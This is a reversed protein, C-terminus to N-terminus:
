KAIDFDISKQAENKFKARSAICINKSNFVVILSLHIYVGRLPEAPLQKWKCKDTKMNTHSRWIDNGTGSTQWVYGM